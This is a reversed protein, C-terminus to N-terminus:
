FLLAALALLVVAIMSPISVGAGSSAPTMVGVEPDWEISTPNFCNTVFSYYAIQDTLSLQITAAETDNGSPFNVDIDGTWQGQKILTSNITATAACGAGTVSVEAVYGAIAQAGNIVDSLIVGRENAATQFTSNDSSDFETAKQRTGFAAKMALRSSNGTYPYNSITINWKLANPNTHLAHVTTSGDAITLCLQVSPSSVVSSTCIEHATTGDPNTIQTDSMVTWAHQWLKWDSNLTDVGPTFVLDGDTDTYEVLKWLVWRAAVLDTSDSSKFFYRLLYHPVWNTDFVFDVADVTPGHTTGSVKRAALIEFRHPGQFVKFERQINNKDNSHQFVFGSVVYAFLALFLLSKM